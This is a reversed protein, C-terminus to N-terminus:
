NQSKTKRDLEDLLAVFSEPLAESLASDYRRRLVHSIWTSDIRTLNQRGVGPPSNNQQSALKAKNEDFENM